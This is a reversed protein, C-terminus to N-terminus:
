ITGGRQRERKLELIKKKEEETYSSGQFNNFNDKKLEQKNKEEDQKAWRVLTALHDSYEKGTARMYESLNDIKRQWSAPYHSKLYDLDDDTLFVNSFTGCTNVALSSLEKEREKKKNEIEREREIEIEIQKKIDVNGKNIDVNVGNNDVNIFNRLIGKNVGLSQMEEISLLWLDKDVVINKRRLSAMYFTRQVRRSTIFGQNFHSRDFLGVDVMMLIVKGVTRASPSGKGHLLQAIKYDVVENYELYYGKDRYILELLAIYVAYCTPGYEIKLKIFKPDNLLEVSLPYYDVGTKYPAAM